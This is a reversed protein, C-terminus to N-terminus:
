GALERELIRAGCSECTAAAVDLSRCCSEIEEQTLSVRGGCAPCEEVFVRFVQLLRGRRQASLAEWGDYRAELEASAAVDAVRAAPSEWQGVPRGDLTAVVAPGHHRVSLAGPDVDLLGAITEREDAAEVRAMRERWAARFEPVLCVDKGGECVAIVGAEFLLAEADLPDAEGASGDDRASTGAAAPHHDFRALVGDPLYRKTLEPTGPVLYGRLYILGASLVFAVPMALPSVLGVLASGVAALAVNVVTCPTCRNEGTYEPRRLTAVTRRASEIFSM